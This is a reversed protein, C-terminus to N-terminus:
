KGAEERKTQEARRIRRAREGNLQCTKCRRKGKTTNEATLAHGRQCIGRRAVVTSPAFGRRTNEASTVIELHYPHVCNRVRCLHDLEMGLPIPGRFLEFSVRHALDTRGNSRITGYGLSTKAGLWFWCQNGLAVKEMFRDRVTKVLYDKRTAM